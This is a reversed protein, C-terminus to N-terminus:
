HIQRSLKVAQCIEASSLKYQVGSVYELQVSGDTLIIGKAVEMAQKSDRQPTRDGFDGVSGAFLEFFV